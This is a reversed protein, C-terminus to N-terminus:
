LNTSYNFSFNGYNNSENGFSLGWKFYCIYNNRFNCVLLCNALIHTIGTKNFIEKLEQPINEQSGLLIGNIFSSNPEPLSSNISNKFINKLKFINKFIFIKIKEIKSIAKEKKFFNEYGIKEIQPYRSLVFIDEKSLYDFYNNSSTQLYGKVSILDGYEFEPYLKTIILAKENPFAIYKAIKIEKVKLVMRQKDSLKQPEDDIYGLMTIEVEPKKNSFNTLVKTKSEALNIRTIGLIFAISLLSAFMIPFNILRSGRRYFIAILSASIITIILVVKEPIDLFSGFLVGSIFSLM